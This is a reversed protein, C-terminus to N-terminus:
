FTPPPEGAPGPVGKLAEAAAPLSPDPLTAGEPLDSTSTSAAESLPAHRAMDAVDSADAGLAPGAEARPLPREAGPHRENLAVGATVAAAATAVIIAVVIREKGSQTSRSSPSRM